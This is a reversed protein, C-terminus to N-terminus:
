TNSNESVVQILDDKETLEQEEVPTSEIKKIPEKIVVEPLYNHFMEGYMNWLTVWLAAIIPGVIFGAIGFLSLGGLTSFLILLEHLGAEQGVLKPRLLNDINSVVLGCWIIVLIGPIVSGTMILIIAAPLWVLVTGVVPIVSLIIMMMSWFLASDVGALGLAIGALVGQIVGILLTGKLTAKTVSTFRELLRDEQDSPLPLLYLIRHLIKRGDMIFFFLTYLYIFLLFLSQMASLIAPSLRNVIYLSVTKVVEGSKQLIQDQYQVLHEGKPLKLILQELSTENAMLKQIEPQAKQSIQVAQGVFMGVMGSLPLLIGLIVALLTLTSALSYKDKTLKLFWRYIPQVMAATLAAMFTVMLFQKTMAFIIASILGLITLLVIAQVRNQKM